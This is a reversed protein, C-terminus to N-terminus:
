QTQPLTNLTNFSSSVQLDIITQNAALLDQRLSTIEDLLLQVEENTQNSQIYEGSKKILYEHSNILGTSPIDYFINDYLTFFESVNITDKLQAPPTSEKSFSTDIVKSYSDADFVTKNLPFKAM